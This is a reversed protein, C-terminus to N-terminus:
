ASGAYAKAHEQRSETTKKQRKELRTIVEQALAKYEKAGKNRPAYTLISEGASPAEAIRVNRHIVTDFVLNGFFERLQQQVQRSLMTQDEVFTLLLGLAKAECPYFRKKVIHITELLRRLGELAYYHTQVTILVEDSAILANLMLLSLPPACDILCYDYKEKVLELQESLALEKGASARLDLEATGLMINSPAIDLGQLGSPVIVDTILTGQDTLADYITQGLRDPNYGYGLTSHGQPDLDVLLVNSNNMALAAALNVATTTKGCGGKQNAIAITKM